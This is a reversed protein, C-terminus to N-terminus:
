LDSETSLSSLLRQTVEKRLEIADRGTLRRVLVRLAYQALTVEYRIDIRSCDDAEDDFLVEEALECGEWAKFALQDNTWSAFYHENIVEPESAVRPFLPVVSTM